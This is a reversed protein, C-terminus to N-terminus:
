GVGNLKDVVAFLDGEKYFDVAILNPQVGRIEECMQIRALLFKRANVVKANTPRPAPSTDVWHNLLFFGADSRGRNPACSSREELQAPNTFRYPTEQTILFQRRYWEPTGGEREAMVVLRQNSDILERLTPWPPGNPGTYLFPTLGAKEIAASTV